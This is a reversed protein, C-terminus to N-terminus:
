IKEYNFLKFDRDYFENILHISDDNLYSYYNLQSHENVHTRKQKDFDYYGLNMMDANLTETKVIDVNQILENNDNILFHYQPLNHNDLLNPKTNIHSKILHYTEEKTTNINMKKLWFLDSIIREYPNRVATLIKINDVDIDLEKKYKYINKYTMHQPNTTINVNKTAFWEISRRQHNNFLSDNNLTINYKRSFYTEITKGGTKPIHLFLLDIENNRFYPM